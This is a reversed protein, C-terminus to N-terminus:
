SGLLYVTLNSASSAAVHVQDGNVLEVSPDRHDRLRAVGGAPVPFAADGILEASKGTILNGDALRTVYVTLTIPAGSANYAWVNELVQGPHSATFESTDSSPATFPAALLPSAKTTGSAMFRDGESSPFFVYRFFRFGRV